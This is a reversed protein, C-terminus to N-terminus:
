QIMLINLLADLGSRQLGCMYSRISSQKCM